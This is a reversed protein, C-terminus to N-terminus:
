RVPVNSFTAYYSEFGRNSDIVRLQGSVTDVININSVDCRAIVEGGSQPAVNDSMSINSLSEKNLAVSGAQIIIGTDTKNEVRFRVGKDSLGTYYINVYNDSYLLKNATQSSNAAAANDTWPLYSQGPIDLLEALDRRIYKNFRTDYLSFPDLNQHQAIDYYLRGDSIIALINDHNDDDVIIFTAYADSQYRKLSDSFEKNKAIFSNRNQNWLNALIRPYDARRSDYGAENAYVENSYPIYFVAENDYVMSHVSKFISSNMYSPARTNAFLALGNVQRPAPAAEAQGAADEAPAPEEAPAPVAEAEEETANLWPLVLTGNNIANYVLVGNVALSLGFIVGILGKFFDGM